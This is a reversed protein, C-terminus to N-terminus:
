HLTRQCDVRLVLYIMSSGPHGLVKSCSVRYADYCVYIFDRVNDDTTVQVMEHREVKRRCTTAM